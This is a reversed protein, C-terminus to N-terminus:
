DEYQRVMFCSEPSLYGDEMTLAQRGRRHFIGLLVQERRGEPVERYGAKEYARIARPNKREPCIMFTNIGYAEHLHETLTNIADVGYGAGCNKEGDMWIDLEMTGFHYVWPKDAYDTIQGYSIFGIPVDDRCIMMGARVYPERGDFYAPVYHEAFSAVGHAFTEMFSQRLYDTTMGMDYILQIEESKAIRLTVYTGKIM